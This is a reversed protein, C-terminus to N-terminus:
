MEHLKMRRNRNFLIFIAVSGYVMGSESILWSNHREESTGAGIQVSSIFSTLSSKVDGNIFTV